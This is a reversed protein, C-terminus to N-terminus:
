GKYSGEESQMSGGEEPKSKRDKGLALKFLFPTVLATAIGMFVVVSYLGQSIIGTQLGYLAIILAVELRPAMGVGVAWADRRSMGFFKAPVGCGVVKTLMALITLVVAFLILESLGNIDFLVGMSIFFIPVMIAGIYKTGAHAESKIVSASFITGALFAGVIASIGIVEAIYAFFLAFAFALVFGTHEIGRAKGEKEALSVIKSLYRTGVFIGIVIFSVAAVILLIIRDYDIGGLAFGGAIGLVIMGLIDDVVAAGLIACGVEDSIMGMEMLVAATVSVSTAVMTAGIFIAQAMTVMPVMLYALLYGVVWPLAVGGLAIAFNRKTYIRRLDSELGIMFLLVIAGLQAFVSIMDPNVLQFGTLAGLVSPGIIIGIIIEGIVLPQKFRTFVFHSLVAVVLLFTLQFWLISSDAM